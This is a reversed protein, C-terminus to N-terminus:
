SDSRTLALFAEEIGSREETCSLVRCGALSLRALADGLIAEEELVLLYQGAADAIPTCTTEAPLMPAIHEGTPHNGDADTLLLVYRRPAAHSLLHPVTGAFEVSGSRLVTVRDAFGRIEDLRQTAWVVAAGRGSIDAVLERVIGAGAPDLDHTAEDVLLVGPETLLARAVSLRKQMGHSYEGVRVKAAHGLGVLDLVELSRAVARRRGLGHLRAFFALNELGSIRQYFTRDGSPMLGVLKRLARNPTSADVGLVRVSGTDPMTLGALIRLLTTKGAGNPGLLAHIEGAGVNLSANRLAPRRGFSRSVSAAEVAPPTAPPRTDLGHLRPLTQRSAVETLEPLVVRLVQRAQV